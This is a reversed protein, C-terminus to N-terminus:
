LRLEGEYSAGLKVLIRALLVRHCFDGAKCFCVLTVREQQLLWDWRARKERYSQRMMNTYRSSYDQESLEGRKLGMVMDWTPAWTSEGSKVTIDLRSPGAYRFQATWVKLPM